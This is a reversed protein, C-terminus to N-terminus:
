DKRILFERGVKVSAGENYSVIDATAYTETWIEPLYSGTGIVDIPAGVDAMVKCKIVDFGSSSSLLPDASKVEKVVEYEQKTKPDKKTTTIPVKKIVEELHQARAAFMLSLETVPAINSDHEHLLLDRIREGIETGGPERTMVVSFGEAEVEKAILPILTSKGVGEVGEISIMKGPNM